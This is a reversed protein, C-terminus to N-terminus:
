KYYRRRVDWISAAAYLALGIMSLILGYKVCAPEYRLEVTHDGESAAFGLMTDMLCVTETETGDVYVKWGEDYPISTFVTNMGETVTITGTIRDDQTSYAELSGSLLEEM